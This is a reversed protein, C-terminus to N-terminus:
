ADKGVAFPGPPALGVSSVRSRMWPRLSRAAAKSLRLEGSDRRTFSYNGIGESAIQAQEPDTIIVQMSMRSSVSVVPEPYPAQAPIRPCEGRLFVSVDGIASPARRSEEETLPRGLRAEVDGVTCLDDM